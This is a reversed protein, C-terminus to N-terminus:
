NNESVIIGLEQATIERCEGEALSEDLYLGGMRVRRLAVVKNDLTAFMRKVQHYKGEHIKVEAVPPAESIMKVQAELCLTGDRLEIGETFKKIDEQTLTRDLTAHYTKM